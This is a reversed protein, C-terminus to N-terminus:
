KYWESTDIGQEEYWEDAPASEHRVKQFCGATTMRWVFPSEAPNYGYERIPHADNPHQRLLRSSPHTTGPKYEM